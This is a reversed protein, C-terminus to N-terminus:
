ENTMASCRRKWENQTPQTPPTPRWAPQHPDPDHELAGDCQEVDQLHLVICAPYVQSRESGSEIKRGSNNSADKKHERHRSNFLFTLSKHVEIESRTGARGEKFKGDITGRCTDINQKGNAKM